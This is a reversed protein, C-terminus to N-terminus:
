SISDLYWCLQYWIEVESLDGSFDRITFLGGKGNPEYRRNLFREIVFDIHSRDYREDLMSGLGLNGIMGWFWQGARNGLKPDDMVDEECRLALAVMMEFVTCPGELAYMIYDYADEHGQTVIFRYRLTMGDEARNQDNPLLYTFETEHLHHLLKMFSRRNNYEGGCILSFLWEFYENSVIDRTM